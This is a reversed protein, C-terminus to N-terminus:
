PAVEKLVEWTYDRPTGADLLLTVEVGFRNPDLKVTIEEMAITGVYTKSDHLILGGGSEIRYYEKITITETATHNSTAIKVCKPLFVGAPSNNRYVTIESGLVSTITGGTEELVALANLIAEIGILSAPLSGSPRAVILAM